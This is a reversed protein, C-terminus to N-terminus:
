TSHGFGAERARVIAQARGEVDLKVYIRTVHNRVTKASLALAAAIQLNDRGQAILELLELERATLQAFDAPAQPAAPLFTRFEEVWRQWAPEDRLLLHNASELAVFRADPIASAFLRGENFPVRADRTAHMVLVPCRVRPLVATVDIDNSVRMMRVANAPSASVRALENFWDQQEVTGDPVFQTAFFQRYTPDKQGWGIETLKLMLEAEERLAPTPNRRLRGRAYAGYAVLQTVRDPHRAAYAAAISAGQSIGLLAFRELGAADVVAELDAVWDDFGIHDVPWQSLGSARQDYRLLLHRRSLEEVLHSWVPSALDLELHSIWNSAKVLPPGHGSTAYALRVGDHGTCHRIRQQLPAM